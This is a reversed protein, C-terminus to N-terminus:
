APEAEAKAKPKRGWTVPANAVPEVPAAIRSKRGLEVKQALEKRQQAYNHATIPCDATLNWKARYEHPTMHYATRLHRKLM